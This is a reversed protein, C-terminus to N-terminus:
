CDVAVLGQRVAYRTLDAVGYLGLKEMTKRRHADVTKPSLHLDLAIGKTTKGEGVLQLVERERPSLLSFASGDGEAGTRVYEEVLVGAIVPSLYTENGMVTRIADLLEEFACQKLVYGCAGARLMEAVLRKDSYMSLAIVRTKNGSPRRSVAVIQRTADVGNLEPMSVDMVIVDPQMKRALRVATRGDEAEAVVEVGRQKELLGRLGERILRHDDALLVTTSMTEGGDVVVADRSHSAVFLFDLFRIDSKGGIGTPPCV